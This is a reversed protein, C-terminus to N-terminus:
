PVSPSRPQGLWVIVALLLAAALWKTWSSFAPVPAPALVSGTEGLFNTPSNVAVFAAQSEPTPIQGAVEPSVRNLSSIGDIPLEGDVIIFSDYFWWLITDGHPSFFGDPLIYDPQPAGPLAAYSPTGVLFLQNATLGVLDHGLLIDQNPTFTDTQFWRSSLHTEFDSGGIEVLELFQIRGDASSFFESFRWLHSGARVPTASGAVLGAFVLM